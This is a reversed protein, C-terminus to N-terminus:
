AHDQAEAARRSELAERMARLEAAAAALISALEDFDVQQPKSAGSEASAAGRMRRYLFERVAAPDPLGELTIEAKSSGSATQIQIRSLAFWRELVNSSLHIDQIRDYTLHIERRFLAGYQVAVGDDDLRYRLTRYRLYRLAMLAPFAPGVSFSSLLYYHLLRPIPRTIARVDSDSPM